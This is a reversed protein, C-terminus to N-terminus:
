RLMKFAHGWEGEKFGYSCWLICLPEIGRAARATGMDVAEWGLQELLKASLKKAEADNGCIFMSPIADFAPNVMAGAGVSNFAKVFHAEPHASQLHEMLSEGNSTFFELVGEVPGGPEIPNCTDWICKGQTASEPIASIVELAATGKVALILLEGFEACEKVKAVAVTKGKTQTWDLLADPNRTGIVVAHGHKALGIALTKGVAGSGIIGVKM